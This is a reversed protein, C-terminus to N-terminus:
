LSIFKCNMAKLIAINEDSQEVIVIKDQQGGGLMAGYKGLSGKSTIQHQCRSILFLDMYGKEDGNEVITSNLTFPISPILINRVYDKDDSFFYFQTDQNKDYFYRIARVFYSESVPNGYDRRYTALDGRRVHVAVSSQRAISNYLALNKKDLVREADVKFLDMFPRYVEAPSTFYGLITAPPRVEWWANHYDAQEYGYYPFLRNYWKCKKASAVPFELDPFAKLLDFNRVSNGNADKGDVDYWVLNYEVEVGKVTRLYYGMLYQYMQSCIGGDVLVIVTPRSIRLLTLVRYFLRGFYVLFRKM